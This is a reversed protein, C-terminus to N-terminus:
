VLDGCKNWKQRNETKSILRLNNLAWCEMFEKDRINKFKFKSKPIIHDIEKDKVCDSDIIALHNMLDNVSYGLVQELSGKCMSNVTIGNQKFHAKLGSLMRFKILTELKTENRVSNNKFAYNIKYKFEPIISILKLRREELSINRDILYATEDSMNIGMSRIEESYFGQKSLIDAKSDEIYIPFCM